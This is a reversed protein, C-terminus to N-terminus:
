NGKCIAEIKKTIKLLKLLFMKKKFLHLCNNSWMLLQRCREGWGPDRDAHEWQKAKWGLIFTLFFELALTELNSSITPFANFHTRYTRFRYTKLKSSPGVTQLTYWPYFTLLFNRNLPFGGFFNLNLPLGGSIKPRPQELTQRGHRPNAGGEEVHDHLWRSLIHIYCITKPDPDMM